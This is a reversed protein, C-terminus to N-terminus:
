LLTREGACLWLQRMKEADVQQLIRSMFDPRNYQGAEVPLHFLNARGGGSAKIKRGAKVNKEFVVAHHRGQMALLKALFLGTAGAGVIAIKMNNM